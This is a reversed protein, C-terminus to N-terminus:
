GSNIIRQMKWENSSFDYGLMGFFCGLNNYIRYEKQSSSVIEQLDRPVPQGNRLQKEVKSDVSIKPFHSVVFDPGKVLKKWRYDNSRKELEILSTSDSANFHGTRIRVLEKLYAGCGIMNGLDYALSRMYFGKGCEVEIELLPSTWNLLAINFVKVKRPERHVELGSRALDYLRKGRVKLASYMPPVQYIEGIFKSICDEIQQITVSSNDSKRIVRGQVDYTDTEIGLEVIGRYIKTSNIMYDMMKTGKGLGIPLVGSAFPDLTGGHGVRKLLTIKKVRRVVDMSTIGVPKYINMVGNVTSVPNTIIKSEVPKCTEKNM